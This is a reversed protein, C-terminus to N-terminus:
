KKRKYAHMMDVKGEKNFRWNEQVDASDVRNKITLYETGYISVWNEDREISRIPIVAAVDTRVATYVGRLKIMIDMLSDKPGRFKWGDNTWLEVTDAYYHLGSELSNADFMKWLEIVINAQKPDGPEFKSYYFPRATYEYPASTASKESDMTDEATGSGKGQDNCSITFLLLAIPVLTKTM